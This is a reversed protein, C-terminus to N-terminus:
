SAQGERALRPPRRKDQARSHVVVARSTKGDLPVEGEDAKSSAVPRSQTPKTHARVGVAEGRGQAVAEESVRGGAGYTAPLRSIFRTDGLAALHAATVLAADAVYRYAAAKGGHSALLRAMESVLPLTLIKDAAKGDEVQGWSPVARDVCRM